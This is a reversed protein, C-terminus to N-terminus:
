DTVAFPYVTVNSANALIINRELYDRNVPHPEFAIVGQFLKSFGLTWSGVHAGVDVAIERAKTQQMFGKFSSREFIGRGLRIRQQMEPDPASPYQSVPIHPSVKM